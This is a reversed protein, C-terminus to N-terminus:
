NNLYQYRIQLVTFEKQINSLKIKSNVIKKEIKQIRISLKDILIASEKTSYEEAGLKKSAKIFAKMTREVEKHVIINKKLYEMSREQCENMDKLLIQLYNVDPYVMEAIAPDLLQRKENDAEVRDYFKGLMDPMTLINLRVDEKKQYVGVLQKQLKTFIRHQRHTVM